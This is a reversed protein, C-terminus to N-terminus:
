SFKGSDSDDPGSDDSDESDEPETVAVRRRRGPNEVGPSQNRGRGRRPGVADPAAEVVAEATDDGVPDQAPEFADPRDADLPAPSGMFM